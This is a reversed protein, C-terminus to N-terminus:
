FVLRGEFRGLVPCGLLLYSAGAIVAAGTFFEALLNKFTRISGTTV